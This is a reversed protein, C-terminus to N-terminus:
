NVPDGFKQTNQLKTHTTGTWEHITISSKGKPMAYTIHPETYVHHLPHHSTHVHLPTSYRTDHIIYSTDHTIHSTHNSTHHSTDVGLGLKTDHRMWDPTTHHPTTNLRTNHRTKHLTSHLM